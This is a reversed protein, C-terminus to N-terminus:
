LECINTPCGAWDYNRRTELTGFPCSMGINLKTEILVQYYTSSLPIVIFSAFLFNHM